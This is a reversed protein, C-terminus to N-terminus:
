SEDGRIGWELLLGALTTREHKNIPEVRQVRWDSAEPQLRRKLSCLLVKKM